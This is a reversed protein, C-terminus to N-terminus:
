KRIGALITELINKINQPPEWITYETAVLTAGITIVIILLLLIALFITKGPTLLKVKKPQPVRQPSASIHYGASGDTVPPPPPRYEQTRPMADFQSNGKIIYESKQANSDNQTTKAPAQPVPNPQPHQIPPPASKIVKPQQKNLKLKTVLSKIGPM